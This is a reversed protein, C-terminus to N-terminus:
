VYNMTFVMDIRRIADGKTKLVCGIGYEDYERIIIVYVWSMLGSLDIRRKAKM